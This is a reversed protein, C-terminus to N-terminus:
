KGVAMNRPVCQENEAMTKNSLDIRILFLFHLVPHGVFCSLKQITQIDEEM